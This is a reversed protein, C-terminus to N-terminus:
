VEEKIPRLSLKCYDRDDFFHIGFNPCGACKHTPHDPDKCWEPRDRECKMRACLALLDTVARNTKAIEPIVTRPDIELLLVSCYNVERRIREMTRIFQTTYHSADM